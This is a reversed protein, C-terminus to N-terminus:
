PPHTHGTGEIQTPAPRVHDRPYIRRVEAEFRKGPEIGDRFAGAQHVLFIRIEGHDVTMFTKHTGGHGFEGGDPSASLGFGYRAAISDGTQKTTMARVSQPTLYRRGEFSGNNLLMQCFRALDRATSFLGGAPSAHRGAGDLPYTLHRIPTEVLTTKEANLQYTSALRALQATTPFFTTDTMGLPGLLRERLFHEFPQGSVREVILAAADIGTNCYFYAEGPETVLPARLDLGISKELPFADIPEAIGTDVFRIGSTHSLLHRVLIPRAPSRLTGDPQRVRVHAFPPLYDAVPDDVRVRGEDVLMMLAAAAFPKTMSAIWFLTDTRMMHKSALDAYGVAELHRIRTKDAVLMVAGALIHDEVLPQLASAFLNVPATPAPDEYAAPFATCLCLAAFLLSLFRVPM